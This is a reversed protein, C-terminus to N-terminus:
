PRAPPQNARAIASQVELRLGLMFAMEAVVFLPGVLLSKLDDVFAPKRGEFYHGVFQIIWGIVFLGLGWGLWTATQQQGIWLGLGCCLVLLLAMVIGFRRDLRLYFIVAVVSALMAPTMTGGGLGFVPRSLLVVVALVIMPIGLLHTSVNRRDRHYGSYASLATELPTVAGLGSEAAASTLRPLERQGVPGADTCGIPM